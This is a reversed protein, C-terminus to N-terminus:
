WCESGRDIILWLRGGLPVVLTFDDGDNIM